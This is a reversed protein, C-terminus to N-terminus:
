SCRLRGLCGSSLGFIRTRSCGLRAGRRRCALSRLLVIDLAKIHYGGLKAEADELHRPLIEDGPQMWTLDLVVGDGYCLDIPIGEARPADPAQSGPRLPAGPWSGSDEGTPIPSATTESITM